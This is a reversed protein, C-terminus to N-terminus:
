YFINFQLLLFHVKDLENVSKSLIADTQHLQKRWKKAAQTSSITDIYKKLQKERSSSVTSHSAHVNGM